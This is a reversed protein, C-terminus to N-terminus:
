LVLGVSFPFCGEGAFFIILFVQASTFFVAALCDESVLKKLFDYIFVKPM